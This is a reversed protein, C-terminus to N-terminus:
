SATTGTPSRAISARQFDTPCRMPYGDLDRAKLFHRYAEDWSGARELLQGLRYHAEAFGGQRAILARYASEAAARDEAEMRRAALFDRGFSTRESAPTEPPLYSRNPEYGADNGPPSILVPLSGIREAYSVVAELRRGFDVLLAKYETSTYAPVDVLSRHGHPPPPIAVRCKDATQRMLACLPSIGEVREILSRWVTPEEADLYYRTDRGSDVRASFENHGCYILLIEPRRSLRALLHQQAELNQGSTALVQLRLERAPFVRRLQWRLMYGISTWRTYPVGEASSEGVVAIDLHEDDDGDPFLDPTASRAPM